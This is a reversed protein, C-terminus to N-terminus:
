YLRLNDGKTGNVVLQASYRVTGATNTAQCTYRGSHDNTASRVILISTSSSLWLTSVGESHSVNKSDFYWSIDVPLDGKAVNCVVQVDQGSFVNERFEFPIIEPPEAFVFIFVLDNKM